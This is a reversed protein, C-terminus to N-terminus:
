AHREKDTASRELSTKLYDLRVEDGGHPLTIPPMAVQYISRIELYRSLSDASLFGHQMGEDLYVFAEDFSLRSQKQWWYFLFKEVQQHQLAETQSKGLHLGDREALPRWQDADLNEVSCWHTQQVASERWTAAHWCLRRIPGLWIPLASEEVAPFFYSATRPSSYRLVGKREGDFGIVLIHRLHQLVAQVPQASDIQLGAWSEPQAIFDAAVSLNEAASILLPSQDACSALETDDFLRHPDPNGGARYLREALDDRYDLLLWRQSGTM